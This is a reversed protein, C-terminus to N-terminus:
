GRGWCRRLPRETLRAYLPPPQTDPLASPLRKPDCTSPPTLACRLIAQDRESLKGAPLLITMGPVLYDETNVDLSPNLAKIQEVAIGRKRAVAYLYDGKRVTYPRTSFGSSLDMPSLSCRTRLSQRGAPAHGTAPLPRVATVSM